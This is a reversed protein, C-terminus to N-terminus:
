NGSDPRPQSVANRRSCYKSAWSPDNRKLCLWQSSRKAAKSAAKVTTRLSQGRLELDRLPKTASKVM